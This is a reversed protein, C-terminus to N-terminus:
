AMRSGSHSRFWIPRHDCDMACCVSMRGPLWRLYVFVMASLYEVVVLAALTQEIRVAITFSAALYGLGMIVLVTSYVFALLGYGFGPLGLGQSLHICFCQRSHGRQGLALPIV